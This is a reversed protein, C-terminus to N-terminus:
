RVEGFAVGTVGAITTLVTTWHTGDTSRQVQTWNSRVWVGHGFAVDGAVVTSNCANRESFPGNCSVIDASGHGSSATVWNKGDTSRWWTGPDTAAMLTTGDFAMSRAAEANRFTSATWSAGDSSWASYGYGGVASFLNAQPVWQVAGLWQQEANPRETWALGDPSTEIKWGVSVFQGAGFTVARLLFENDGDAGLTQPTSWTLGLDLSRQRLGMYGVIVFVPTTTGADLVPTGADVQPHGADPLGADALGADSRGADLTGADFGELGADAIPGGADPGTISMGADPLGEVDVLCGSCLLAALLAPRMFSLAM